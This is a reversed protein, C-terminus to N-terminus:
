GTTLARYASASRRGGAIAELSTRRRLTQSPLQFFGFTAFFSDDSLTVGRKRPRFGFPVLLPLYRGDIAYSFFQMMTM